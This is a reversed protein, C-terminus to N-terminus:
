MWLAGGAKRRELDQEEIRLYLKIELSAEVHHGHGHGEETRGAEMHGLKTVAIASILHLTTQLLLSSKHGELNTPSLHINRTAQRVIHAALMMTQRARIHRIIDPLTPSDRKKTDGM